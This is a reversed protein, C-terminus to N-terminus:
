DDNVDYDNRKARSFVYRGINSKIFKKIDTIDFENNVVDLHYIRVQSANPVSLSQGHIVETFIREFDREKITLELPSATTVLSDSSFYIIDDYSDLSQWFDDDIEKINKKFEKNGVNLVVYAYINALLDEYCFANKSLIDKKTFGPALGINTSDSIADDEEIIKRFAIVVKCQTEKKLLPIVKEAFYDSIESIDKKRINQVYEATLNDHGGKLHGQFADDAMYEGEGACRLISAFLVKQTVSQGKALKMANLFTGICLKKM